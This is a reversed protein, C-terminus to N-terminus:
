YISNMIGEERLGSELGGGEGRGGGGGGVCVSYQLLNVYMCM